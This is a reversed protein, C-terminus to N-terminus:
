IAISQISNNPSLIAQCLKELSSSYKRDEWAFALSAGIHLSNKRLAGAQGYLQDAKEQYAAWAKVGIENKVTTGIDSHWMTFGRGWQAEDPMPDANLDGVIALLASNDKRHRIENEETHEKDADADFVLYTPIGMHKAIVLPQLLESKGSAPVVHCGIRHYQEFKELLNMYSHIYAVDELGEVLVLRRTFFMENLAPQLVQHIKALSGQPKVPQKGTVEAVSNSIDNFSMHTVTSSSSKSSKRVMRVDEFGEGSVFRPDHTSVLIQSNRQSLNNLVVALHRAQPPHQYLEPEECALVLTPGTEENGGGALEQLLALLYSRQLGHGFRALEGKFDGEGAIAHAWPEDVRVSRESDQRWQLRLSVDSHAWESLRTQLSDSIDDLVHQNQELLQQYEGQAKERLSKIGKGFDVRTRVARGLLKGLASTRAEVQESTADKVAPIYVWQIHKELRNKGKTFGYFEDQSPILECQEPHDEEFGSLADMMKQKTSVAPLEPFDTRLESYIDRLESVLVGPTGAAKFFSAFAKIGKRKGYQKVKARNLDKDFRAEALVTLEGQRVYDALDTTADDSLDSFTVEIRIPNATDKGHFDEIELNSLDTPLNESQRFFLNLANLITSKGAGNPGVLCIYDNLYITVDKFSRFNQIKVSKINM